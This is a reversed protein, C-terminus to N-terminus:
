SNWRLLPNAYNLPTRRLWGTTLHSVCCKPRGGERKEEGVDGRGIEKVETKRGMRGQQVFTELYM